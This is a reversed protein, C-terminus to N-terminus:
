PKGNTGTAFERQDSQSNGNTEKATKWKNGKQHKGSTGKRTKRQDGRGKEVPGRQPKGNAGKTTTCQDGKYIGM